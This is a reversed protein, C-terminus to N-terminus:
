TKLIVLGCVSLGGAFFRLVPFGDWWAHEAQLARLTRHSEARGLHEAHAALSLGHSYGGM